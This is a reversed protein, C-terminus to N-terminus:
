NARYRKRVGKEEGGSREKRIREEKRGRRMDTQRGVGEVMANEGECHFLRLNAKEPM